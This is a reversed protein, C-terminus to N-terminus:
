HPPPAAPAPMPPPAAPMMMQMFTAVGQLMAGSAGANCGPMGPRRVEPACPDHQVGVMALPFNPRGSGLAPIMAAMARGNSGTIGAGPLGQGSPAAQMLSTGKFLKHSSAAAGSLTTSSM